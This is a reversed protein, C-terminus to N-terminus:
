RGFRARYEGSVIFAKVMEAQEFNGDFRNLKDLWFRYGSADPDRRLYGFYQMMVFTENRKASIFREDEVIRMLVEARSSTGANLSSVMGDRESPSFSVHTNRILSDVYQDNSVGAYATQFAAREVWAAVFERKSAALDGAWDGQGVVIDRAVARADPMFEAFQPAAGYSARYLGDVLGGTQQFEISFFYAASVNITRREVCAADTGCSLIQDSWFNFGSEDPNRSLFDLYHQRVFYEPTDIANVTVATSSGSFEAETNSGLQNFSREAPSFSYNARVPRVIYFGNTEVNDFRYFGNADTIFRRNQTGSLNVVAGAIPSGNADIIRGSIRGQAATPVAAFYSVAADHDSLREPRSPDTSLSENFDGNYRGYAVRTQRLLMKTNVLIHDLAQANGEFTFSYRESAPVDARNISDFLEYTWVDTSPEVVQAAPPPTGSLTGVVDGLGDNFQFANLDGLVVLYESQHAQIYNAIDEAQLRRKERNRAGETPPGGNFLLPSDVAILSKTHNLIVTIPLPPGSIQPVTANLIYSPRDHLVSTVGNFTFTAGKNLQVPTGVVTVRVTNVLFGIDQDEGGGDIGELLFAQYNVVATNGFDTNVKTALQQLSTLDFVEIIGLIDPTLMVNRIALSAKNLRDAFNANSVGFNELNASAVTFESATRPPVATFATVGGSVGTTATADLVIRYNDFSYDLPGVIGTVVAGANLQIATRRVGAANLSAGSDVMIREFNGDFVPISPATGGAFPGTDSVPIPDGAELGPERFPRATGTTVGWFEGFSNTPESVTLSPVSLRMYEYKELEASRSPSAPNFVNASVVDIAAPLPNGSSLVSTSPSTLETATRPDAVTRPEDSTAAIFEAVTGTVQVSDGITVAPVTSGTFVLIADSTNPNGDGLPDQIYFGNNTAGNSRRATVIGTTTVSVGAFTSANGSGQITYIPTASVDDNNITGLGQLDGPNAGSLNTVNVFFTENPETVADGNVDVTFTTSTNGAGITVGTLAKAVYDNDETAPVDDQATGDATAIDFSVGGPPAATTLTVNFTFTTTGANGEAQTVDSVSLAPTGGGGGQPTVSVDDIALGHDNNADNVDMWRLWIEQGPSVIVNVTASLATRNAAANGDIAAATSTGPQPTTFDLPDHDVWGTTPTNADTIVGAGAVQYQFDLKQAAPTCPTPACGGQRWQEGNFSIDLSTITSGTNNTLKLANFITAPTGSSVSGFARETLPNTGAVGWSYIAGTNSGGSDARYTTPNTPTASFQSFWGPLTTDDTWPNATGTTLLTDFNETIPTGLTTISIAEVVRVRTSSIYLGGIM